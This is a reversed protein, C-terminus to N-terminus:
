TLEVNRVTGDREIVALRNGAAIEAEFFAWVAIARRVGETATVGKAAILSRFTAATGTSINVSLRVAKPRTVEDEASM